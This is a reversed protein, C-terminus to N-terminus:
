VHARGIESLFIPTKGENIVENNIAEEYMDGVIGFLQILNRKFRECENPVSM